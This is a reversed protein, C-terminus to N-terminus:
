TVPVIRRPQGALQLLRITIDIYKKLTSHYTQEYVTKGQYSYNSPKTVTPDDHCTYCLQNGNARKYDEIGSNSHLDHCNLCNGSGYTTSPWSTLAYTSNTTTIHKSQDAIVQGSYTDLSTSHCGYCFTKDLGYVTKNVDLKQDYVQTRIM